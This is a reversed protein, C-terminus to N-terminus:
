IEYFRRIMSFDGNHNRKSDYNIVILAVNKEDTIKTVNGKNIYEIIDYKFLSWSIKKFAEKPHTGELFGLDNLSEEDRTLDFIFEKLKGNQYIEVGTDLFLPM